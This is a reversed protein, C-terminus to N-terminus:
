PEARVPRPGHGAHGRYSSFLSPLYSVALFGLYGALAVGTIFPLGILPSRHLLGPLTVPPRAVALSAIAAAALDLLVHLRSVPVETRGLCGCSVTSVRGTAVAVLFGAFSLYLLAVAVCVAPRPAVLATVGAGAEVAGLIRAALMGNPVGAAAMARGAPDPRRLKAAGGVALLGAVVSFPGALVDSFV